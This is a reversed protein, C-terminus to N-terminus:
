DNHTVLYNANKARQDRGAMNNRIDMDIRDAFYVLLAERTAPAPKTKSADAVVIHMVEFPLKKELIQNVVFFNEGYLKGLESRVPGKVTPEYEMLKSVDHLLAGAILVDMNFVMGKHAYAPGYVKALAIVYAAVNASHQVLTIATENLESPADFIDNWKSQAFLDNWIAVVSERVSEDAIQQLYPEFVSLYDKNM